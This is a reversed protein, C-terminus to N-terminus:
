AAHHEFASLHAALCSTLDVSISAAQNAVDTALEVKFSIYLAILCWMPPEGLIGYRTCRRSRGATLCSRLNSLVDSAIIFRSDLPQIDAKRASM